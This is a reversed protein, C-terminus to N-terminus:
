AGSEGEKVKNHPPKSENEPEQGCSELFYDRVVKKQRKANKPDNLALLIRKRSEARYIDTIAENMQEPQLRTMADLIERKDFVSGEVWRKAVAQRAKWDKVAKAVKWDRARAEEEQDTEDGTADYAYARDSEFGDAEQPVLVSEVWLRRQEQAERAARDEELEPEDVEEEEEELPDDNDLPEKPDDDAFLTYRATRFLERAEELAQDSLPPDTFAPMRKGYNAPNREFLLYPAAQMMKEEEVEEVEWYVRKMKYQQGARESRYYRGVLDAMRLMKVMHARKCEWKYPQKPFENHQYEAPRDPVIVQEVLTWTCAAKFQM